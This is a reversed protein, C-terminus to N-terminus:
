NKKGIKNHNNQHNHHELYNLNVCSACTFNNLKVIITGAFDDSKRIALMLSNHPINCHDQQAKFCSPVNIKISFYLRSRSSYYQLMKSLSFYNEFVFRKLILTKSLKQLFTKPLVHIHPIFERRGKGKHYDIFDEFIGFHKRVQSKM